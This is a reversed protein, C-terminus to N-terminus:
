FFKYREDKIEALEKITQDVNYAIRGQRQQLVQTRYSEYDSVEPAELKNVMEIILVGNDVSFPKTTEGNEMSFAVGVAEPALGVSKLSNSSLKLAPMNYVKAGDGYGAAIEEMSGSLGNLKESIIKAKKQDRVKKTIEFRVSELEAAGEEQEDTLVAIVYQDDIEFVESVDGLSANNYAWYVISRGESIGTIRRDNKRVRAATKVSLGKEKATSEFEEISTANLAFQEADRYYKNRTDDTVFIELAVKAIKYVVNTKIETVDIIHYGFQTEVVDGILGKSPAAFVAEQFPAVMAGESFWGLDGGKSATGDTGHLRAMEAFDTGNKIKRLVDRAEKKAKAKEADSDSAWKFLIHSARASYTDSPRMSAVKYLVYSGNEVVPGVFTGSGMVVDDGLFVAPLEGPTYNKFADSADSNVVAFTSDNDTSILESKLKEIQEVVMATDDASPIVDFSVYKVSKSEERQYEKENNSLYSNLESDSVEIASDAMSLFPVYVYNIDATNSENQYKYKAEAETAYNTKIMLNDFKLRLRGPGLNKEFNYWNARQAPTQEGLNQLFAVVNDKSFGGTEPDTFAQRIEPSINDGQVMDVIEEDSVNIGVANFENKFAYEAVLADWTLNRIGAMDNSTPTRRNSQTWNYEIEDQKALFDQYSIKSGAIEGVNTKSNGLLTSNPGLLDAGVFAVISFGILFVIIKSGKERLTNIAAM